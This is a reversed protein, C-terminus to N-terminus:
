ETIILEGNDDAALTVGTQGAIATLVENVTGASEQKYLDYSAFAMFPFIIKVTNNDNTDIFAIASSKANKYAIGTEPNALQTVAYETLEASIDDGAGYLFFVDGATMGVNGIAPETFIISGSVDNTILKITPKLSYVPPNANPKKVVISKRVDFDITLETSVGEKITFGSVLKLGNNKIGSNIELNHVMDDLLTISNDKATTSLYLRIQGYEGPEFDKSDFKFVKGKSFELLDITEAPDAETEEYYVEWGTDETSTSIEIKTITINVAKADDIPADTIGISLTSKTTPVSPASDGCAVLFLTLLLTIIFFCLRKIQKMM